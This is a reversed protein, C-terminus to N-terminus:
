FSPVFLEVMCASFTWENYYRGLGKSLVYTDTLSDYSKVRYVYGVQRSPVHVLAGVGFVNNRSLDKTMM